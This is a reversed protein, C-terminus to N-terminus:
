VYIKAKTWSLKKGYNKSVKTSGYQCPKIYTQREGPNSKESTQYIRTIKHHVFATWELLPNKSHIKRWHRISTLALHLTNIM